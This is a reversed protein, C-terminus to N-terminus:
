PKPVGNADVDVGIQFPMLSGRRSCSIGELVFGGEVESAKFISWCAESLAPRAVFHAFRTLHSPPTDTSM